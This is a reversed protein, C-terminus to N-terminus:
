STHGQYLQIKRSLEVVNSVELKEFIRTKYTNVTSTQLNLKRGIAALTEGKVLQQMVETERASLTELPNSAVTKKKAVNAILQQKINNSIYIDNSMVTEIAKRMEDEPANKMLYGKAGAQLYRVAYLQEDYGSFILVRTNPQQHCIEPVMQVNDGGPINIDLIILDFTINSVQEMVQEFTVAEKINGEPFIDKLLLSTGYRVMTHDEAIM